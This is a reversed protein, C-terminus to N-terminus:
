KVKGEEKKTEQGTRDQGSHCQSGDRQGQLGKGAEMGTGEGNDAYHHGPDNSLSIIEEGQFQSREKCKSIEGWERFGHASPHQICGSM